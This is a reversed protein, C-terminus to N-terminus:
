DFDDDINALKNLVWAIGYALIVGAIVVKTIENDM